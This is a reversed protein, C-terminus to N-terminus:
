SQAPLLFHLLNQACDRHGRRGAEREEIAGGVTGAEREEIAGRRQGARARWCCASVTGERVCSVRREWM